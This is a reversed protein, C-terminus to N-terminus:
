NQLKPPPQRFIERFIGPTLVSLPNVGVQPADASGRLTYNFGFLGEGKRPSFLAGFIGNVAYIPSVVGRMDMRRTTTNYIGDMTIGMSPGVASSRRLTVGDPTLLFRAEVNGFLIGDGTLQELLGIVSIASLLDALAPAKKVRTNKIDLAGDFQGPKGNPQLTLTMDGGNANRFIGSARIVRGGNNSQIRVAPGRATPVVTGTIPAEGNLNGKFTGDLGRGGRFNGQFQDITITDTVRLRDLAFDLPPGNAAGGGQGGTVGFKRIDITGGRIAIRVPRNAGQGTIEVRSNLRDGVVLPNFVARELGGGPRLDVTGTGRLGATRISVGNVKPQAGLLLEVELLGDAGRPKSWGLAPISLGIGRLDSSLAAVPAAGPELLIDLAATGRGSVSGPPLGVNFTDLVRQSLEMTGTLRSQPPSGPGIERSWVVDTPIGDLQAKGGISLAGDGAEVVLLDAELQRDKILTDSRVGRLEARVDFAVDAVNVDRKLPVTLGMEVRAAGTAVDPSLESKSLFEFPKRDLLTLAASLPGTLGLRFEALSPKATMDAIVMSSGGADLLGADGVPIAGSQLSMHFSTDSISAFGRANEVEPLSKLYRVRAESFDFSVAARTSEGPRVRLAAAANQVQGEVVNRILWDRTKDVATRPWLKMLEAHAIEDIGAEMSVAWGEELVSVTGKALLEVGEDRLLLQGVDMELATPKYRLDLAGSSFRVPAEFLGEPDLLINRFRLQGLLTQPIGANFDQLDAHGTAQLRLEPADLNIEDFFLRGTAAEYRVYTRASNFRVPKAQPTPQLVGKDINLAGALSAVQGEEDIEATLAGSVPADLVNLFNLTPVQRALGRAELDEFKGVLRAGQLGKAKDAAFVLNAPPGGDQDLKFSLNMTIVNAANVLSLRGQEVAIVEGSRVDTLRLSLAEAAIDELEDLRPDAFWTDVRELVESLSGIEVEGGGMTAGFALGIEGRRDRVLELSGGTLEVTELKVRGLLLESTDLKSRLQPMALLSEGGANFIQLGTIDLTPRYEADLLGVAIGDFTLSEGEISNNIRTELEGVLWDPLSVSRGLLALLTVAVAFLVLTISAGILSALVRLPGPRPRVRRERKLASHRGTKIHPTGHDAM